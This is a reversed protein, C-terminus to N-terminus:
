CQYLLCSICASPKRWYRLKILVFLFLSVIFGCAYQVYSLSLYSLYKCIIGDSSPISGARGLEQMSVWYALWEVVGEGEGEKQHFTEHTIQSENDHWRSSLGTVVCTRRRHDSKSTWWGPGREFDSIARKLVTCRVEPILEGGFKTLGTLYQRRWTWRRYWVHCNMKVTVVKMM